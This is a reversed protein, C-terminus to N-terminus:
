YHTRSTNRFSLQSETHLKVSTMSSRFAEEEAKAALKTIWYNFKGEKDELESFKEKAEEQAQVQRTSM